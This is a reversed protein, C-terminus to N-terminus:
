MIYKSFLRSQLFNVTFYKRRVLDDLQDRICRLQGPDTEQKASFSDFGVASQNGRDNNM